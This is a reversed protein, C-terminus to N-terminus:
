SSKSMSSLISRIDIFIGSNNTRNCEKAIFNIHRGNSSAHANAASKIEVDNESETTKFLNKAYDKYCTPSIVILRKGKNIFQKFHESVDGDRFSFGIVICVDSNLLKEKFRKLITSFPQIELADKPSLTPAIVAMEDPELIGERTFKVVNPKEPDMTPLDTRRWNISGHIKYLVITRISRDVNDFVSDKWYHVDREFEFGDVFREFVSTFEQFKEVAIDYNTTGVNIQNRYEGDKGYENVLEFLPRFFDTVHEKAEEKIKYSKLLFNRIDYYLNANLFDKLMSVSKNQIVFPFQDNKLFKTLQKDNELKQIEKLFELIYEIDPFIKLKLLPVIKEDIIGSDVLKEKAKETSPNGFQVSAGAGLFLVINL